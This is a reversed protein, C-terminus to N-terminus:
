RRVFRGGNDAALARLFPGGGARGLLITHVVIAGVPNHRRVMARVLDPDDPELKRPTKPQRTTPLGDSLLFITDIQAAYARDELSVGGLAFAVEFAEFVATGLELELEALWVKAAAANRADAPMQRESWALVREAFVVVNFTQGPALQEIAQGLERVCAQWRTTAGDGETKAQMSLSFDVLYLVARGDQPIGFYTGGRTAAGDGPPRPRAPKQPRGDRVFTEGEAQWWAQWSTSMSGFTQGTLQTLTDAVTRRWRADDDDLRAMLAPAGARHDIAAVTRAAQTRVFPEPHNLGAEVEPGAGSGAGGLVALARLAVWVDDARKTERLSERLRPLAQATMRGVLPVLAARAQVPLSPTLLADLAHPLAADTANALREEVRALVQLCHDLDRRENLESVSPVKQKGPRVRKREVQRAEQHTRSWAELLADFTRADAVAGLAALAATRSALAEDTGLDMQFARRLDRVPDQAAALAALAPLLCVLRLVM